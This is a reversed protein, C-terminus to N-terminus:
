YIVHQLMQIFSLPYFIQIKALQNKLGVRSSNLESQIRILWNKSGNKLANIEFVTTKILESSNILTTSSTM